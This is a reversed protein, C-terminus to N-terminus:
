DLPHQSIIKAMSFLDQNKRRFHLIYNLFQIRGNVIKHNNWIGTSINRIFRCIKFRMFKRDFDNKRSTKPFTFTNIVKNIRKRLCIERNLCLRNPPHEPIISKEQTSASHIDDCGNSFLALVITAVIAFFSPHHNFFTM